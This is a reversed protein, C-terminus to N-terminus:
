MAPSNERQRWIQEFNVPDLEAVEFEPDKLLQQLEEALWPELGLGTGGFEGEASAYGKRGNQWIEVKRLEWGREDIECIIIAPYTDDHQKWKMQIYKM